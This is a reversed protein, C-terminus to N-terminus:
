SQCFFSPLILQVDDLLKHHFEFALNLEDNHPNYNADAETLHRPHWCGKKYFYLAQRDKDPLPLADRWIQIRLEAPLSPFLTFVATEM